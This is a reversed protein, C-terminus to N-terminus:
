AMFRSLHCLEQGRAGQVTGLPIGGLSQVGARELKQNRMAQWLHQCAWITVQTSDGACQLSGVKCSGKSCNLSSSQDKNMTLCYETIEALNYLHTTWPVSTLFLALSRARIIFKMGSSLSPLCSGFLRFSGM